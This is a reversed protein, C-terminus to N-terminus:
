KLELIHVSKRVLILIQKLCAHRCYKRFDQYLELLLCSVTNNIIAQIWMKFRAFNKCNVNYNTAPRKLCNKLISNDQFLNKKPSKALALSLSTDDVYEYDRRDYSIKQRDRRLNFYVNQRFLWILCAQCYLTLIISHM